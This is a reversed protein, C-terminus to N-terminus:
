ILSKNRQMVFPFLIRRFNLSRGKEITLPHELVNGATGLRDESIPLTQALTINCMYIVYKKEYIVYKKTAQM